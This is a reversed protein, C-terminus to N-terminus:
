ALLEVAVAVMRPLLETTEQEVLQQSSTRPVTVVLAAKGLAEQQQPAKNAAMRPSPQQTPQSPPTAELVVTEAPYEVLEVLASWSRIPLALPSQLLHASLLKVVAEVAVMRDQPFLLLEVEAM